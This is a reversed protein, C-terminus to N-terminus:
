LHIVISELVPLMVLNNSKQFLVTNERKNKRFCVFGHMYQQHSVLMKLISYCYQHQRKAVTCHVAGFTSELKWTQLIQENQFLSRNTFWVTRYSRSLTEWFYKVGLDSCVVGENQLLGSPM